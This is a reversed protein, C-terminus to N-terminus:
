VTFVCDTMKDKMWRGNMKQRYSLYKSEEKQEGEKRFSHMAGAEKKHASYVGYQFSMHILRHQQVVCVHKFFGSPNSAIEISPSCWTDVCSAQIYPNIVRGNLLTQHGTHIYLVQFIDSLFFQLNTMWALTRHHFNEMEYHSKGYIPVHVQVTSLSLGHM